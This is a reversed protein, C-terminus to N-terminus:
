DRSWSASATGFLASGIRLLTAGEALAERWDKSMGMSLEKLQEAGHTRRLEESLLRLSGFLRHLEQQSADIPAMTMLGALQISPLALLSPFTETLGQRTFGQKTPEPALNVQLLLSTVLGREQSVQAMKQALEFSDIGHFLQFHGIAKAVKNKQLHGIFHWSLPLHSLPKQKELAEQLRNEGFSHCGARYAEEVAAATTYKSAAVIQWSDPRRGLKEGQEAVQDRLERWQDAISSM